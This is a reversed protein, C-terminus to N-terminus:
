QIKLEPKVLPIIYNNALLRVVKADARYQIAHQWIKRQEPKLTPKM